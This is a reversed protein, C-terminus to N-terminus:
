ISDYLKKLEIDLASGAARTRQYDRHQEAARRLFVGYQGRAREVSAALDRYAYELRQYYKAENLIRAYEGRGFCPAVIKNIVGSVAFAIPITILSSLGAVTLAASVPIMVGATAGATIGAEGGSKLIEKLYEEDSLQGSKWRKYSAISEIGVGIAFGVAGAKAMTAGVNKLTYHPSAEGRKMQELRREADSDITKGDKFTETQYGKNKAFDTKEANTVVTADGPTNHLDPNTKGTYGKLQYESSSGNVVNTETLDTGPRIPDDGLEYRNLVNEPAARQSQMYDWEYGKGKLMRQRLFDSNSAAYDQAREASSFMGSKSFNSNMWSWFEVDNTLVNSYHNAAAMTTLQQAKNQAVLKSTDNMMDLVDKETCPILEQPKKEPM